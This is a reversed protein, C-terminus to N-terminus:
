NHKQTIDLYLKYVNELFIKQSFKKAVYDAGMKAMKKSTDSYRYTKSLFHEISEDNNPSLLYGTINHKIVERIGDLDSGIVPTQCSLAEIICLGLAEHKVSPLVIVDMANYFLIMDADKLFGLFIVYDGINLKELLYKIRGMFHKPYINGALILMSNPHITHFKAFGKLLHEVGKDKTIRGSYGVFYLSDPLNFHKRATNKKVHKFMNINAGYFLFIREKPINLSKLMNEVAESIAIFYTNKTTFLKTILSNFRDFIPEFDIIHWVLPRKIFLSLITGYLGSFFGNAHIIDPMEIKKSAKLIKLITIIHAFISILDPLRLNKLRIKLSRGKPLRLSVIEVKSNQFYEAIEERCVMYSKIKLTEALLKIRKEPSSIIESTDIYLVRM